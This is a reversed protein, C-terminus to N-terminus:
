RRGGRQSLLLVLLLAAGGVIILGGGADATVGTQSAASSLNLPLAFNIPQRGYSSTLLKGTAPDVTQVTEFGGPRTKLITKTLDFGQGILDEWNIQGLGDTIRASRAEVARAYAQNLGGAAQEPANGFLRAFLEELWIGINLGRGEVQGNATRMVAASAAAATNRAETARTYAVEYARDLGAAAQPAARERARELLNLEQEAARQRALAQTKVQLAYAQAQAQAQVRAREQTSVAATHERAIELGANARVAAGLGRAAEAARQRALALARMKATNVASRSRTAHVWVEEAGPVPPNIGLAGKVTPYMLNRRVLAPSYKLLSM